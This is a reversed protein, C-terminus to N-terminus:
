CRLAEQSHITEVNHPKKVREEAGSQTSPQRLTSGSQPVIYFRDLPM